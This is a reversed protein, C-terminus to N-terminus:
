VISLGSAVASKLRRGTPRVSFYIYAEAPYRPLRLIQGRRIQGNGEAEAGPKELFVPLVAESQFIFFRLVEGINRRHRVVLEILFLAATIDDYLDARIIFLRRKVRHAVQHFLRAPTHSTRKRLLPKKLPPFFPSVGRLRKPNLSPVPLWLM